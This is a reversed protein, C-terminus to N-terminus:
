FDLQSLLSLPVDARGLWNSALLRLLEVRSSALISVCIASDIFEADSCALSFTEAFLLSGTMM